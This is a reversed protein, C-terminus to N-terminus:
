KSSEVRIRRSARVEYVKALDDRNSDPRPIVDLHGLVLVFRTGVRIRGTKPLVATPIKIKM